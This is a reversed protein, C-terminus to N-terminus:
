NCGTLPDPLKLNFKDISRLAQNDKAAYLQILASGIGEYYEIKLSHKGPPLEIDNEVSVEPLDEVYEEEDELDMVM